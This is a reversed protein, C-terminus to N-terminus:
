KPNFVPKEWTFCPLGSEKQPSPALKLLAVSNSRKKKQLVQFQVIQINWVVHLFYESRLINKKEKLNDPCKPCFYKLRFYPSLTDWLISWNSGFQSESTYMRSTNRINLQQTKCVQWHSLLHTEKDHHNDVYSKDLQRTKDPMPQVQVDTVSCSFWWIRLHHSTNSILFFPGINRCTLPCISHCYCLFHLYSEPEYFLLGIQKKKDSTSIPVCEWLCFCVKKLSQVVDVRM